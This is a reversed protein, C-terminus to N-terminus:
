SEGEYVCMSTPTESVGIKIDYISIDFYDAAKHWLHQAILESTTRHDFEVIKRNNKSLLMAIECEFFNNGNYMFSHDLQEIEIKMFESMKYFDLVMGQSSPDNGKKILQNNSITLHVSYTHGHLNNCKGDHEDLMHAADFSYIKTNSWKM